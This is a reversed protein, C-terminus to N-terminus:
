WCSACTVTTTSSGRIGSDGSASGAWSPGSRTSARWRAPPTTSRRPCRASRSPYVDEVSSRVEAMLRAYIRRPRMLDLLRGIFRFLAILAGVMLVLGVVVTLTLPGDHETGGLDAVAVLAYVGPSVFVGLANKIVPDRRFLPVLRPSYQGAGFQVVLVAVSVVLGSFAIMGSAIAELVSQGAAADVGFLHESGRSRDIAPLAVALVIAGLLYLAPLLVLSRRVRERVLLRRRWGTRREHPSVPRVAIPPHPPSPPVAAM